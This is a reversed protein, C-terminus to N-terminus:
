KFLFEIFLFFWIIVVMLYINSLKDNIKNISSKLEDDM